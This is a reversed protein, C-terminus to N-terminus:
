GADAAAAGHHARKRENQHHQRQGIRGERLLIALRQSGDGHHDISLLGLWFKPSRAFCVSAARAASTSRSPRM